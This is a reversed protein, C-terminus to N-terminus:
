ESLRQFAYRSLINWTSAVDLTVERVKWRVRPSLRQLVTVIDDAKAGKVMAVIAGKRGEAAKNTIITYLEGNSLSAEDISLFGGINKEYLLWREAHPKQDWQHYDSM